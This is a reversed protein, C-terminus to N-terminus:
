VKACGRGLREYVTALNDETVIVCGDPRSPAEALQRPDAGIGGFTPHELFERWDQELTFEMRLHWKAEDRLSFLGDAVTEAVRLLAGRMDAIKEVSDQATEVTHRSEGLRVEVQM